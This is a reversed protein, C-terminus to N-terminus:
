EIMLHLDQLRSHTVGEAQNHNSALPRDGTHSGQSINTEMGSILAQNCSQGEGGHDVTTSLQHGQWEGESQTQGLPDTHSFGQIPNTMGM